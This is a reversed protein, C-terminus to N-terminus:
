IPAVASAHAARDLHSGALSERLRGRARHLRSMITGVPVGLVEAAEEYTMSRVDVLDIVTKHHEPLAELAGALLPDLVDSLAIAEPDTTASQAQHRAMSPSDAEPNLSVEVLRRKRARSAATNFIIRHLWARPYRGDFGRIGRYAKTLVEQALDEADARSVCFRRSVRKVFDVEPAIWRDFAADGGAVVGTAREEMPASETIM